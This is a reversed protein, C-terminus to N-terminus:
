LLIGTPRPTSGAPHNTTPLQPRMLQCSQHGVAWGGHGGGQHVGFGAGDGQLKKIAIGRARHGVEHLEGVLAKVVAQAEVPYDIAEHGLATARVATLPGPPLGTGAPRAVRNGALDIAVFVLGAAERHGMGTAVGAAALKEQAMAGLGVEIALM